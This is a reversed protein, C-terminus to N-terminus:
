IRCEPQRSWYKLIINQLKKMQNKPTLRSSEEQLCKLKVCLNKLDHSAIYTFSALDQNKSELRDNQQVLAQNIKNIEATRERVTMELLDVDVEAKIRHFNENKISLFSGFLITLSIVAFLIIFLSINNDVKNKNSIRVRLVDDEAQDMKAVQNRIVEMLQEGPGINVSSIHLELHATSDAVLHLRGIRSQILQKLKDFNSIQAPNDSILFRLGSLTTDLMEESNKSASIYYPNRTLLYARQASEIESLLGYSKEIKFKVEHTHTIWESSNKQKQFWYLSFFTLALLFLASALFLPYSLRSFTRRKRKIEPHNNM